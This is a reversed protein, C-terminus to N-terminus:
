SKPKLLMLLVLGGVVVGGIILHSRKVNMGGPLKVIAGGGGGSGDNASGGDDAGEGNQIAQMAANTAAGAAAAARGAAQQIARQDIPGDQPVAQEGVSAPAEGSKAKSGLLANVIALLVPISALITAATVVEGFEGVIPTGLMMVDETSVPPGALAALVPGFPISGKVQSKTWSRAEAREAATPVKSKRNDWALKKARRDKLTNLRNKIPKLLPKLTIDEILELPKLALKGVAKAGKATYRAGTAVGHGTAKVGTAIGHGTATVGKKIGSGIKKFPSTISFGLQPHSFVM